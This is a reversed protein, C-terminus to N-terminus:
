SCGMCVRSPQNDTIDKSRASLANLLWHNICIFFPWIFCWVSIIWVPSDLVLMQTFQTFSWTWAHSRSKAMKSFHTKQISFPTKTHFITSKFRFNPNQPFIFDFFHWKRNFISSKSSEIATSRPMKSVFRVSKVGIKIMKPWKARFHTKEGLYFFPLSWQLFLSYTLFLPKQDFVVRFDDKRTYKKSLWNSWTILIM